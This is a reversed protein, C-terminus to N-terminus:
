LCEETAHAEILPTNNYISHVHMRLEHNKDSVEFHMIEGVVTALLYKVTLKSQANGINRMALSALLGGHTMFPFGVATQGFIAYNMRTASDNEYPQSAMVVTNSQSCQTTSLLPRADPLLSSLKNDNLTYIGSGGIYRGGHYGVQGFIGTLLGFKLFRISM